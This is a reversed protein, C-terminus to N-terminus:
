RNTNDSNKNEETRENVLNLKPVGFFIIVFTIIPMFPTLVVTILWFFIKNILKQPKTNSSVILPTNGCNRCGM